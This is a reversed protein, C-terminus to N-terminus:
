YPNKPPAASARVKLTSPFSLLAPPFSVGAEIRDLLERCATRGIEYSPVDVTTLAPSIMAAYDINDFGVVSVDQPVSAGGEVLAAICGFAMMDNITVLATPMPNLRLFARGLQRGCTYEYVQEAMPQRRDDAILLLTEESEWGHAAYAARYGALCQRRAYKTLPLSAFAIRRHGLSILYEAAAKTGALCDADIGLCNDYPMREQDLSVVMGGSDIFHRVHATEETATAILLGRIRKDMVSHLHQKELELNHDSNLIIVDYGAERATREIGSLVEIYFPNQMTPLMVAIERIENKKLMRGLPNPTYGLERITELVRERVAPNVKHPSGNIIRSVTAPSTGAAQAIDIITVNRTRRDVCKGGKRPIDMTRRMPYRFIMAEDSHQSFTKVNTRFHIYLIKACRDLAM